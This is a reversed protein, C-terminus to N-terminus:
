AAGDGTAILHPTVRPWKSHAEVRAFTVIPLAFDNWRGIPRRQEGRHVLQCRYVVGARGATDSTGHRAHLFIAHFNPEKTGSIRADGM